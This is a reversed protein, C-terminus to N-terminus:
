SGLWSSICSIVNASCERWYKVWLEWSIEYMGSKDDETKMQGCESGATALHVFVSSSHLLQLKHLRVEQLVFM